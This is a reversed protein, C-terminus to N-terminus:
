FGTGLGRKGWKRERKKESAGCCRLGGESPSLTAKEVDKEKERRAHNIVEHDKGREKGLSAGGRERREGTNLVSPAQYQDSWWGAQNGGERNREGKGV